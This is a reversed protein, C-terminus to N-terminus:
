YIFVGTVTWDFCNTMNSICGIFTNVTIVDDVIICKKALAYISYDALYWSFFTLSVRSGAIGPEGQLGEAGKKGPNGKLSM